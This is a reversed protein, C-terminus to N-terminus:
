GSPWWLAAASDGLVQDRERWRLGACAEHAEAVLEAYPRGHVTLDSAWMVRPAGFAGVIAETFARPSAGDRRAQAWVQTSLKVHVNPADALEFLPRAEPYGPGGSLDPFGCHDVLVSLDGHRRAARMVGPLQPATVAVQAIVGRAALEDLVPDSAPEDLWRGDGLQLFLRIARAGREAVWYRLDALPEKDLDVICACAFRDPNACAADATYRNDYRYASFAQVLVARDVGAGDMEVVLEEASRASREFWRPVGMPPPDLPYRDRDPSVVHVQTDIRM